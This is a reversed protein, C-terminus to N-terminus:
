PVDTFLELLIRTLKLIRATFNGMSATDAYSLSFYEEVCKCYTQELAHALISTEISLLGERDLCEQPYPRKFCKCLFRLFAETAKYNRLCSEAELVVGGFYNAIRSGGLEQNVYSSLQFIIEPRLVLSDHDYLASLADVLHTVVRRSHDLDVAMLSHLCNILLSLFPHTGKEM